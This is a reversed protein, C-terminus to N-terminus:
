QIYFVENLVILGFCLHTSAIVLGAWLALSLFQYLISQDLKLGFPSFGSLLALLIAAGVGLEVLRRRLRSQPAHAILALGAILGVIAAISVPPAAVMGTVMMLLVGVIIMWIGGWLAGVLMASITVTGFRM